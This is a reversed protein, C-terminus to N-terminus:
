VCRVIHGLWKGHTDTLVNQPNKTLIKLLRYELPTFVLPKGSLSLHTYSVPVLNYNQFIFGIKRRRFITLQEDKLTSLDRGDVIVKGSTPM